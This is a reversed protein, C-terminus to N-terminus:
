KSNEEASLRLFSKVETMDKDDIHTQIYDKTLGLIALTELKETVTRM